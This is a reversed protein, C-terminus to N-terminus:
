VKRSLAIERRRDLSRERKIINNIKKRKLMRRALEVELSVHDSETRSGEKVKIVEEIAKENTVMYDVESIDTKTIYTWERIRGYSDNLIM